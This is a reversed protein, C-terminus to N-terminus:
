DGIMAAAIAAGLSAGGTVHLIQVNKGEDGLIERLADRLAVRAVAMHTFFSGEVAINQAGISKGDLIHRLMGVYVAAAIRASRRVIAEALAASEEIQGDTLSVGAMCRLLAAGDGQIIRCLDEGTVAHFTEGLIDGFARSFLAGLYRGSVMKELTQAGEKESTADLAMDYENQDLWGFNGAELNMIMPQKEGGFKELYCANFGTAYISGIAVNDWQYAAALLVAVTDNLIATPRVNSLGRRLLADNLRENVWRGEVDPVALEKTWSILKADRPSDQTSPFSFTHGLRYTTEHDGGLVADIIEALFGFLGIASSGRGAHNYRGPVILPKAVRAAQEYQGGGFLRVREARVNTGGFDLTIFEGHEDGTPLGLYSPLPNLTSDANGQLGKEMESRFVEVAAILEEPGFTFAEIAERAKQGNWEM